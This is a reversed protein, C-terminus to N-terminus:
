RPRSRPRRCEPNAPPPTDACGTGEDLQRRVDALLFEALAEVAADPLRTDHREIRWGKPNVRRRAFYMLM